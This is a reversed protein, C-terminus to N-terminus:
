GNPQFQLKGDSQSSLFSASKQIASSADGTKALSATLSNVDFRTCCHAVWVDTLKIWLPVSRWM